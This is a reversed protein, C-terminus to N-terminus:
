LLFRRTMSSSKRKSESLKRSCRFIQDFEDNTPYNKTKVVKGDVVTVPLVDVGDRNLVESIVTNDVFAQPNNTLNYREVKVVM